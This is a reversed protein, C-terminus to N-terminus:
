VGGSSVCSMAGPGAQVENRTSSDRGAREMARKRKQRWLARRSVGACSDQGRLQVVDESREEGVVARGVLRRDFVRVPPVRSRLFAGSERRRRQRAASHDCHPEASAEHRPTVCENQPFWKRCTGAAMALVLPGKPRGGGHDALEVKAVAMRLSSAVASISSVRTTVQGGAARLRPPRPSWAGFAGNAAVGTTM